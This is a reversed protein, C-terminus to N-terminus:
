QAAVKQEQKPHITVEALMGPRLIWYGNEKRNAVEVRVSFRMGTELEPNVATVQGEFTAKQGNALTVTVSVPRQDVEAPALRTADLYPEIVMRDMQVLRIVPDGPKVWEGEERLRRVIEGDWPALVKRREVDVKAAELEAKRVDVNIAAIALQYQAHQIELRSAVVELKLKQLELEPTTGPVRKNADVGKEYAKEAVWNKATAYDVSIQNGAEKEAAVVKYQAVNRAAVAQRDDIQALLDGKKVQQNEKVKVELIMGAEQAAVDIIRNAAIVCDSVHWPDSSDDIPAPATRDASFSSSLWGAAGLVLGLALGGLALGSGRM